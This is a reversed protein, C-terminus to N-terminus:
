RLLHKKGRKEEEEGNIKVGENVKGVVRRDREDISGYERIYGRAKGEETPKNKYQWKQAGKKRRLRIQRIMRGETGKNNSQASMRFRNNRAQHEKEKRM